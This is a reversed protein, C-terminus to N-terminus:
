VNISEQLTFVPQAVTRYTQIIEAVISVAIEPPTQAGINLGVPGHIRGQKPTIGELMLQQLRQEHTRRSGLAGLYFCPSHVLERLVSLEHEHEHFLLVAATFPDVDLKPRTHASSLHACHLGLHQVAAYTDDDAALVHVVMASAVAIQALATVYPGKGIILLRRQPFYRRRFGSGQFEQTMDDTYSAQGTDLQVDLAVPKRLARAACLANILDSKLTIDFYLDIGSGCPLTVDIYPSGEGLRLLKNQGAALVMLAEDVIVQEACGGTLYGQYRGDSSVVMQSGIPRPSSGNNNILTVMVIQCGEALYQQADQLLDDHDRAVCSM